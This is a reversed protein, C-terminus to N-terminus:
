RVAVLKRSAKMGRSSLVAFYAGPSVLGGDDDRGDWRLVAEGEVVTAERITRVRRGGADYIGVELRQGATAAFSIRM